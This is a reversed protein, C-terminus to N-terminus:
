NGTPHDYRHARVARGIVHAELTIRFLDHEPFYVAGADAASAHASLAECYCVVSRAVARCPIALPSFPMFLSLLRETNRPDAPNAATEASPHGYTALAAALVAVTHHTCPKTFSSSTEKLLM